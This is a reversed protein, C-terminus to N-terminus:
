QPLNALAIASPGAFGRTRLWQTSRSALRGIDGSEDISALWALSRETGVLGLAAVALHRGSGPEAARVLLSPESAPGFRLLAAAAAMAVRESPDGLAAALAEASSTFGEDGLRWAAWARREPAEASRLVQALATKRDAASLVDLKWLGERAARRTGAGAGNSEALRRLAPGVADLGFEGLPEVLWPAWRPDRAAEVVAEAGDRTGIRALAQAAALLMDGERVRLALVPVARESRLLGLSKIACLRLDENGRQGAAEILADVARPDGLRGLSQAALCPRVTGQPDSLAQLLAPVARVDGLEGLIEIAQWREHPAGSAAMELLGTWDFRELSQSGPPSWALVTPRGCSLEAVLRAEQLRQHLDAERGLNGAWVVFAVAIGV